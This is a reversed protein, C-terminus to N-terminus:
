VHGPHGGRGEKVSAISGLDFVVLDSTTAGRGRGRHRGPGGAGPAPRAGHDGDQAGAKALAVATELGIGSNGGTVIVTKGTMDAVDM